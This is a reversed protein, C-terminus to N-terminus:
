RASVFTSVFTPLQFEVAPGLFLGLGQWAIVTTHAWLLARLVQKSFDKNSMADLERQWTYLFAEIRRELHPADHANSQVILVQAACGLACCSDFIKACEAPDHRLWRESSNAPQKARM